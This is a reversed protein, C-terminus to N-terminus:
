RAMTLFLKKDELGVLRLLDDICSEPETQGKGIIDLALAINEAVTKEPLLKYDQFVVAVNRRLHPVERQKMEALNKGEVHVEGQTPDLDKTLLKMLTTKGAGSEGVIFIFEGPDVDFSVDDLAVNGTSFSKTVNIFQIM